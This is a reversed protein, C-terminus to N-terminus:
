KAKKPRWAAALKRAQAIQAPTMLRQLLDLGKRASAQGRGAALSYWKYALILNRPFGRGQHYMAGLQYQADADGQNAARRFWKRAEAFNQAVGQGRAYMIGLNHQAWANGQVAALRYWKVAEPYNGPVGLGADYMVGLSFQAKAHGQRALRFFIRRATVYDGRKAAAVGTNYDDGARVAQVRGLSAALGLMLFIVALRRAVGAGRGSRQESM